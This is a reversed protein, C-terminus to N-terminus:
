ADVGHTARHATYADDANRAALLYVAWSADDVGNRATALYDAWADATAYWTALVRDFEPCDDLAM